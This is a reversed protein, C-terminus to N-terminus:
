SKHMDHGGHSGHHGHGGKGHSMSATYEDFRKKQEPTLTAYFAKTAEDHRAQRADREQRLAQMKEQREPTAMRAMAERDPHAAGPQPRMADTYTKWAADQDTGLQLKQKLEAMHREFRQQAKAARQGDAPKATARKGSAPASAASAPGATPATTSQAQAQALGGLAALTAAALLTRLPLRTPTM